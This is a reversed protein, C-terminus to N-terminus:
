AKFGEGPIPRLSGFNSSKGVSLSVSILISYGFKKERHEPTTFTCTARSISSEGIKLYLRIFDNHEQDFESYMNM